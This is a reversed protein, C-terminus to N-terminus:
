FVVVPGCAMRRDLTCSPETATAVFSEQGDVFCTCNTLGNDGARSCKAVFSVSNCRSEHYCYDVGAAGTGQCDEAGPLSVRCAPLAALEKECSLFIKSQRGACSDMPNTASRACSLASMLVTPCGPGLTTFSKVCNASCTNVDVALARPCNQAYGLCYADCYKSFLKTNPTDGGSGGTGSAGAVGTSGGASAMAKGGGSAMTPLAGGFGPAGGLGTSGAGGASRGGAAPSFGGSGVEFPLEDGIVRGGCAAVCLSILGIARM